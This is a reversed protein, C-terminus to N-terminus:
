SLTTQPTTSDVNTSIFGSTAYQSTWSLTVPQYNTNYPYSNGYTNYGNNVTLTCVPYNYVPAPPTVPAPAAAPSNITIVNNNVNTNVNASSQSQAQSQAQTQTNGGSAPRSPLYSAGPIYGGGLYSSGMFGSGGLYGSGYDNDYSPSYDYVDYSDYGSPSYDYVDYSDYGSPSYDYVDYSDYGEDAAHVAGFPLALLVFAILAISGNRVATLSSTMYM